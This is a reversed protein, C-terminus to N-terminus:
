RLEDIEVTRLSLLFEQFLISNNPGKIPRALCSAARVAHSHGGSYEEIETAAVGPAHDFKGRGIGRCGHFDPFGHSGPQLPEHPLVLM